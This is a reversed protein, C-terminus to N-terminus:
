SLIIEVDVMLNITQIKLAMYHLSFVINNFILFFGEELLFFGVNPLFESSNRSRCRRSATVPGIRGGVTKEEGNRKKKLM